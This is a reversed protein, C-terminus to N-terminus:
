ADSAQETMLRSKCEPCIGHTLDTAAELALYAEIAMWTNEETRIRKCWACIPLLHELHAIRASLHVIRHVLVALLLFVLVRIVANTVLTTVFFGSTNHLFMPIRLVPGLAFPLAALVGKKWAALLTPIVFAIPLMIWPSTVLDAWTILVALLTWTWPSSLVPDLSRWFRILSLVEPLNSALVRPPLTPSRDM